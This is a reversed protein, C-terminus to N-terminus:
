IPTGSRVTLLMLSVLSQASRCILDGPLYGLGPLLDLVIDDSEALAALHRHLLALPGQQDGGPDTCRSRDGDDTRDDDVPHRPRHRRALANLADDRRGPPLTSPVQALRPLEADALLHWGQAQIDAVPLDALLQRGVGGLLDHEPDGLCGPHCDAAGHDM